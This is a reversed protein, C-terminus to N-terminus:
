QLTLNWKSKVPELISNLCWFCSEELSNPTNPVRLYQCICRHGTDDESRRVRSKSRSPWQVAMDRMEAGTKTNLFCNGTSVPVVPKALDIRLKGICFRALRVLAEHCAPGWHWIRLDKQNWVLVHINRTEWLLHLDEKDPSTVRTRMDKALGILSDQVAIANSLTLPQQLDHELIHFVSMEVGPLKRILLHIVDEPVGYTKATQDLDIVSATRRVKTCFRIEGPLGFLFGDANKHGWGHAEWAIFLLHYFASVLTKARGHHDFITDYKAVLDASLVEGKSNEALWRKSISVYLHRVTITPEVPSRFLPLDAAPPWPGILVAESWSFGSSCREWLEQM